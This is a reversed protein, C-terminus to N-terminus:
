SCVNEPGSSNTSQSGFTLPSWNNDADRTRIAFYYLTSQGLGSMDACEQTGAISPTPTTILTASAFNGATIPSTSYRLEYAVATGDNCDNGPANWLIVMTHRGPNFSLSAILAPPWVDQARAVMPSALLGLLGLLPLSLRRM